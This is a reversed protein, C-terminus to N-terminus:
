RLSAFEGYYRREADDRAAIAEEMTGFNGLIHVCRSATIRAEWKGTDKRQFVGKHGSKNDARLGSNVNNQSRHALRLNCWANDSRNRNIHDMDCDAPPWEGTMLLWAIHHARYVKGFIKIQVYGDKDTGAADGPRIPGRRGKTFIKWRIVGTQPDYSLFESVEACTFDRRNRYAAM